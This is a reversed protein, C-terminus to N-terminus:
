AAAAASEAPPLLASGLLQSLEAYLGATRQVRFGPGFRLRRSRGACALELVVEADGPFSTLVERLDEFLDPQWAAADVRLRLPEPVVARSTREQASAIEADTPEFRDVSSAVVCTRSADKHDVKGKVLVVADVEVAGAAEELTDAFIVLEVSGSLDELTAFVMPDGKKTRLRKVQSIMGGITVREGDKCEGVSGLHVDTRTSMAASLTKLPHASIYLGISEKEMALLEKQEFESPPIPVHTPRGSPGASGAGLDVGLDFISGQGIQADQQAKQGAAQAQELVALMGLRTDGTSGFAGCKILAEIAKKNVARGDVRECFDFLDTFDGDERARKIAEVAAYGVGKVADLGFRINGDVVVFRHDSLNVDPPLIEIGMQEAQAVFFPVKDKTDMVSSILAAMYEAPYNARLWATRYSILAYCAAHSKNFSYDASKENTTWLFDIVSESTGSARCGEVFDPKLKAMAERNKKGIAKRLDDAKAGSFGALERSIIMAQEQYLIVGKTSELIHRLREDPYDITEPDHKGRAYTGIQDMAGPRYLAVLAVLDDFETPRVRKLAERMGESEFQFVGISEGRALMRYTKEDDLPMRTMDPRRGTSREIIDLADEIVDLNRLGLFDMKLLGMAEVPKMSFQTVTRYIKEGNDDTKNADALQVPVLDTLPQPAIVVAAAHISANRVIGELGRAVEIIQHSDANSQVEAALPQGPALCDEFKPARGQEPDPILKALKDGLAYPFGLVRAADRTAARPFMKGFTIIQAVSDKGYKETVYQIVQERGRVSFDIDIDPMSVREPNLFREFLLDYALPDLDTIRTAYAVLSGAASGRGPGVPIGHDRAWKIFDWVILFYGSYGMREIVGLEYQARELAAAPVPDGFRWALGEMVLQRLYESEVLGGPCDFRPILQRGLEIAVDCREAIELTTALAEPWEAFRQAMEENSRLYFENTDFTMKPAALTSKTQVCLLASHHEYDERRLYHVDGTGVLPRGVERAIRVIGANAKDQDAIGNKQVEFFVNDPGYIQLLEDAVARAEGERDAVLAQCFRSALCGTLAIIGESHRDMLGADVTPKGRQLGELFGASCLKVLNRYGVASEAILTLHHRKGRKTHDDTVYVECGQIPKIGHKKAAQFLEVAGNMVGHDTLALAPQGFSAAREALRDIKAAGDLLSYESHVHLHACAHSM